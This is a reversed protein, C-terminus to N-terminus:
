RRFRRATRQLPGLLDRSRRREITMGVAVGAGFLSAGGLGAPVGVLLARRRTRLEHIHWGRVRAIRALEHEPNVAHPDGVAELLPLDNISDSYAACDLLDIGHEAAVEAAAKA